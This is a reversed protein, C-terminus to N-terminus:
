DMKEWLECRGGTIVPRFNKIVEEYIPSPCAEYIGPISREEIKEGIVYRYSGNELAAKFFATAEVDKTFFYHQFVPFPTEPEFGTADYFFMVNTIPIIAKDDRGIYEAIRICNEKEACAKERAMPSYCNYLTLGVDGINLMCFLFLTLLACIFGKNARISRVDTSLSVCCVGGEVYISCSIILLVVITLLSQFYYEYGGGLHMVPIVFLSICFALNETILRNKKLMIFSVICGICLVLQKEVFLIRFINTGSGVRSVGRAFGIGFVWHCMSSLIGENWLFYCLLISPVSFSILFILVCVALRRYEKESILRMACSLVIGAVPAFLTVKTFLSFFLLFGLQASLTYGCAKGSHFTVAGFLALFLFPQFLEEVMNGGFMMPLYFIYYIFLTLLAWRISVGFHRCICLILISTVGMCICELVFAGGRGPCVFQGLAEVYFLIPGKIDFFDRYPLKGDLIWKGTLVFFSSDGSLTFDYLPSTSYATLFIYICGMLFAFLYLVM